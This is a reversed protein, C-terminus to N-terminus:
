ISLFWPMVQKPKVKHRQMNMETKPYLRPKRLQPDQQQLQFNSLGWLHLGSHARTLTELNKDSDSFSNLPLLTLFHPSTEKCLSLCVSIPHHLSRGTLEM